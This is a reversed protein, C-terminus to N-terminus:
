PIACFGQAVNATGAQIDVMGPANVTNVTALQDRQEINMLGGTSNFQMDRNVTNGVVEVCITSAAAWDIDIAENTAATITNNRIAIKATNDGNDEVFIGDDLPGNINNNSVVYTGSAGNVSFDLNLGCDPNTIVNGSITITGDNVTCEIAGDIDTLMNGSITGTVNYAGIPEDDFNSFVNDNCTLTSTLGTEAAGESWYLGFDFDDPTLGNATNRSFNVSMTTTGTNDVDLIDDTNNDAPNLFTNDTVVVTANTSANDIDIWDDGTNDPSDFTNNTITLTGSIDVVNIHDDGNPNALTCNTVTVNPVTTIQILVDTSGDITVGQIVNDGGCLIPGEITPATGAPEITQALILGTGEGVLNVGPPLTFGGTMGTNTGNGRAVYIVDGSASAAVAAALTDFPAAQSGNGGPAATNDVFQGLGTSTMTVTATSTGAGNSLTYTFTEAGVFGLLPTYTFSGDANLNIAGGQSGVADFASITAGNITDNALVGAAAQNLTANGLANFADANATPAVGINTNTFVFNESSGCGSFLLAATLTTGLLVKGSIFPKNM